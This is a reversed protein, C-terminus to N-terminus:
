AIRLGLISFSSEDPMNKKQVDIDATSGNNSFRIGLKVCVPIPLSAIPHLPKHVENHLTSNFPPTIPHYTVSNSGDYNIAFFILSYDNASRNLQVHITSSGNSPTINSALTDVVIKKQKIAGTSM